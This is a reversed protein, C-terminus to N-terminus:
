RRERNGRAHYITVFNDVAQGKLILLHRGEGRNMSNGVIFTRPFGPLM